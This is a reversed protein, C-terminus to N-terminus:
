VLTQLLDPRDLKALAALATRTEGPLGLREALAVAEPLHARATEAQGDALALAALARPHPIRLRPSGTARQGFRAV